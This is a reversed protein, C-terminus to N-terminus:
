SSAVVSAAVQSRGPDLDDLAEGPFDAFVAGESSSSASDVLDADFAQIRERSLLLLRRITQAESSIDSLWAERGDPPLAPDNLIDINM